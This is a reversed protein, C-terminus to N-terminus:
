NELYPQIYYRVQLADDRKMRDQHDEAGAAIEAFTPILWHHLLQRMEEQKAEREEKPIWHWGSSEDQVEAETAYALQLLGSALIMLSSRNGPALEPWCHELIALQTNFDVSDIGLTMAIRHEENPATTIAYSVARVIEEDPEGVYRTTHAIVSDDLLESLEFYRAGRLVAVLGRRKTLEDPSTQLLREAALPKLRRYHREIAEETDVVDYREARALIRAPASQYQHLFYLGASGILAALITALLIPTKM